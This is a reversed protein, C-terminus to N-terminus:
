SQIEDEPRTGSYLRKWHRGTPPFKALTTVFLSRTRELLLPWRHMVHDWGISWNQVHLTFTRYDREWNALAREVNPDAELAKAMAYGNSIAMGAGQGLNPPQGHAADGLLAVVGKHWGNVKVRPHAVHVGGADTSRFFIDRLEPFAAAWYEADVPVRTGRPDDERSSACIYLVKESMPSVYVRKHGRWYEVSTTLEDGSKRSVLFRTSGYPMKRASEKLGIQRRVVSGVGDAGVILEGHYNGTTTELHGEVTVCKVESNFIVQAGHSTAAEALERHLDERLVTYVRKPGYSVKRLDHGSRDNIATHEIRHGHRLVKDLWGLDELVKISNEKLYIGAGVERLAPAREHVCVQWGRKALCAAVALGGIGAGVVHARRKMM